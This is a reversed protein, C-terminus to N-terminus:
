ARRTSRHRIIALVLLRDKGKIPNLLISLPIEKGDKRVGYLDFRAEMRRTKPAPHYGLRLKSHRDRLRQPVLADISQGLLEAGSYGFMAETNVNHRTIRGEEDVLVIADKSFEFLREFASTVEMRTGLTQGDPLAEFPVGVPMNPHSRAWEVLQKTPMPKAMFYGQAQDCGLGRLMDWERRSEIGEAVVTLNMSRALEICSQIISLSADDVMVSAAFARDIKLETFPLRRLQLLTSYGTGFDDISLGFGKMRLRVLVDLTEILSELVKSETIELIVQSADVHRKEIKEILQQPFDLNTLSSASVNISIHLKLGYNNWEECADLARDCILGTLPAMLGCREALEIFAFPSVIGRTPSVWRALAEVGCLRGSTMDLKPQVFIDIEKENIATRLEAESIEFPTEVKDPSRQTGGIRSVMERLKGPLIPKKLAGLLHLGRGVAVQQAVELIQQQASSMLIVAPRTSLGSFYRLLEIGDIGPLMLDCVILDFPGQESVSTAVDTGKSCTVVGTAGLATLQKAVVASVFDDDDVILARLPKGNSM